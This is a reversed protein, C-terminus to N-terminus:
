GREALAEAIPPNAAPAIMRAGRVPAHSMRSVNITQDYRSLVAKIRIGRPASVWPREQATVTM